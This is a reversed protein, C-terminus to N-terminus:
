LILNLPSYYNITRGVPFLWNMLGPALDPTYTEPRVPLREMYVRASVRSAKCMHGLDSLLGDSIDLAAKVGKELLLRGEKLRPEPRAFAQRLCIEAEEFRTKQRLMELGAAASGLWGTVAIM